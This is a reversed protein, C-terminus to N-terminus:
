ADCDEPLLHTFLRSYEVVAMYDAMDAERIEKDPSGQRLEHAFLDDNIRSRLYHFLRRKEHKTM